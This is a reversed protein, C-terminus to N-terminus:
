TYSLTLNDILFCLLIYINLCDNNEVWIWDDRIYDNEILHHFIEVVFRSCKWSRILMVPHSINVFKEIISDLIYSSPKGATIFRQRANSILWILHNRVELDMANLVFIHIDIYDGQWFVLCIVDDFPDCLWILFFVTASGNDTFLSLPGTHGWCCTVINSTPVSILNEFDNKNTSKRTYQGHFFYILM